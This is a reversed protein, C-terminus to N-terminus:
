EAVQHTTRPRGVNEIDAGIGNIAIPGIFLHEVVAQAHYGPELRLLEGERRQLSVLTRQLLVARLNDGVAAFMSELDGLRRAHGAQEGGVVILESQEVRERVPRRDDLLVLDLRM